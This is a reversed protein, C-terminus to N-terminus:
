LFQASSVIRKVFRRLFSSALFLDPHANPATALRSLPDGISRIVIPSLISILASV